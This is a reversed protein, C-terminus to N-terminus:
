AGGRERQMQEAADVLGLVELVTLAAAADGNAMYLVTRVAQRRSQEEHASTTRRLHEHSYTM